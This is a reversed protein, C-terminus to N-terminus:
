SATPIWRPRPRDPDIRAVTPSRDSRSGRRYIMGSSCTKAMLLADHCFDSAMQRRLLEFEVGADLAPRSMEVLANAIDNRL